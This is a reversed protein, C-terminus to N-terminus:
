LFSVHITHNRLLSVVHEMLEEECPVMLPGDGNTGFEEEAMELLVQFIPHDLYKLPVVFRKGGKSYVVFHGKSRRKTRAIVHWKRMILESLRNSSM